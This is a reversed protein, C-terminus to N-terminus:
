QQQVSGVFDKCLWKCNSAFRGTEDDDVDGDARAKIGYRTPLHYKVREGHTAQIDELLANVEKSEWFCMHPM